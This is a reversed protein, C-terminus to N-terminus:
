EIIQFFRETKWIEDFVELDELVELRDIKIKSDPFSFSRIM